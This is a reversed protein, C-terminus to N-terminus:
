VGYSAEQIGEQIAQINEIPSQTGLGCAPSIISSGDKWCKVALQKVKEPKGFELTWTSVNGMLVRNNLNKKAEIMPVCSDFSLVDAHILNVQPYVNKMQGCIHMISGMKGKPLADLIMNNYKVTYEEFLKPGLIEGTGSPDSIAIIDAGADLQAKAYHVIEETIFKMYRHAADKKKRLEKYFVVPEILSSATSIPGTVNGIIPVDLKKSKLIRIADVVIKARGKYICMSPIQNMETVSQLAYGTVHPEHIQDGLTVEAGMAEAEVTMCFPVGVNEFCGNRYNAEALNAMMQADTHAEPWRVAFLNMLDTTIMNMMGGPCICPPRDTTEGHMAKQMREKPNM